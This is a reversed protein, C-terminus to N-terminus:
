WTWSCPKKNVLSKHLVSCICHVCHLNVHENSKTIFVTCFWKPLFRRPKKQRWWSWWDSVRRETGCESSKRSASFYYFAGREEVACRGDNMRVDVEGGMHSTLYAKAIGGTVMRDLCQSFLGKESKYFFSIFNNLGTLLFIFRCHPVDRVNFEVGFLNVCHQDHGSSEKQIQCYM